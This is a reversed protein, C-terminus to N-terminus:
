RGPNESDGNGKLRGGEAGRENGEEMISMEVDGNNSDSPGAGSEITENQVRGGSGSSSSSSNSSNSSSSGSSVAQVTKAATSKMGRRAAGSLRENKQKSASVIFEYTTIGRSILLCHFGGLQVVLGVLPILVLLSVLLIPYLENATLNVFSNHSRREIASESVFCEIFYYLSLVLSTMTLVGVSALLALFFRYNKAGVCTNLWLCHHDFRTVCKKCDPCHKASRDVELDCIWCYSTEQLVPMPQHADRCVLANDVPDITCTIYAFALTSVSALCFLSTISAVLGVCDWLLPLLFVFFHVLILPFIIWTAIQYPHLPSDFSTRRYKQLIISGPFIFSFYSM